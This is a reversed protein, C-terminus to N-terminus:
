SETYMQEESEEVSSAINAYPDVPNKKAGQFEDKAQLQNLKKYEPSIKIKDQIWKPLSNFTEENWKKFTLVKFTNIQPPCTQEETLATIATVRARLKTSDSETGKHKISLVCPEGLLQFYNFDPKIHRGNLWGELHLSFNSKENLVLNYTNTIMFPQQGKSEDFVHLKKPLEWGFLVQQSPRSGKYGLQEGLKIIWICRAIQSGEPAQLYSKSEEAYDEYDSYAKVNTSM